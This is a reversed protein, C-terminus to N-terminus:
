KAKKRKDHGPQRRVAEWRGKNLRDHNGMLGQQRPSLWKGQFYRDTASGVLQHQFVKGSTAQIYLTQTNDLCPLCACHATNPIVTLHATINMRRRWFQCGSRAELWGLWIGSSFCWLVTLNYSLFHFWVSSPTIWMASLLGPYELQGLLAWVERKGNLRGSPLDTEWPDDERKSSGPPTQCHQWLRHQRKHGQAPCCFCEAQLM